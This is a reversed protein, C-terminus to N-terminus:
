NKCKEIHASTANLRQCAGKDISCYSQDKGCTKSYKGICKCKIKKRISVKGILWQRHPLLKNQYCVGSNLCVDNPNWKPCDKIEELFKDFARDARDIKLQDKILFWLKLSQCNVKSKSCLNEMCQYNFEKSCAISDFCFDSQQVKKTIAFHILILFIIKKM